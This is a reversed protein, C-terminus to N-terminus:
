NDTLRHILRRLKPNHSVTRVVSKTRKCLLIRPNPKTYTFNKASQHLYFAEDVKNCFYAIKYMVIDKDFIGKQYKEKLVIPDVDFERLFDGINENFENSKDQFLNPLVCVTEKICPHNLAENVSYRETPDKCLLHDILDQMSRSIDQIPKPDQTLIKNMLGPLNSDFFPLEGSLMYYFLVGTSWMDVLHNYENHLIIEPAAYCHSGCNSRALEQTSSMGYDMLRVNQNVDILVNEAKIDRHIIQHDHLYKLAILIQAIYPKARSEALQGTMSIQQALSGNHMYEMVIYIYEEDEFSEYMHTVYPHNLDKSIEIEKRISPLLIDTRKKDIIKIAVDRRLKIHKACWVVSTRGGGISHHLVYEGVRQGIKQKM